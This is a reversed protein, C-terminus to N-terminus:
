NSLNRTGRDKSQVDRMLHKNEMLRILCQFKQQLNYLKYLLISIYCKGHLEPFGMANHLVVSLLFM